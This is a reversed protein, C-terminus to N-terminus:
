SFHSLLHAKLEKLGDELIASIPLIKIDPFRKRFLELNQTSEEEDIKNGVVLFDKDVLREDYDL